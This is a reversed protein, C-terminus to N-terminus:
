LRSITLHLHQKPERRYVSVGDWCVFIKTNRVDHRAQVCFVMTQKHAWMPVWTFPAIFMGELGPLLLAQCRTDAGKGTSEKAM